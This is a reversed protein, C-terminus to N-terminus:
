LVMGGDVQLVAGTTFSSADSAFYVAAAVVEDPVGVRGLAKQSASTVAASEEKWLAESFRTKIVGPCICNVRIGQAGLERALAKTLMILGAKSVSYLGSMPMATLGAVSGMNIISGSAGSTMQNAVMKSLLYPGKLNVDMTKDWAWEESELLPGYYPNTGANNVLLNVPGFRSEAQKVLERLDEQKGVHACRGCVQAEYDALEALAQEIGESRRGCLTVTAGRALFGRAIALGIGRTAGTIIANKGRLTSSDDM